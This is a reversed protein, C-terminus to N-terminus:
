IRFGDIVNKYDDVKTFFPGSNKDISLVHYTECFLDGTYWFRQRFNIIEIFLNNFYKVLVEYEM